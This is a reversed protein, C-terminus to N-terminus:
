EIGLYHLKYLLSSLHFAFGNEEYGNSRAQQNYSEKKIKEMKLAGATLDQSL